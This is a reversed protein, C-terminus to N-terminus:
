WDTIAAGTTPMLYEPELYGQQKVAFRRNQVIGDDQKDAGIRQFLSEDVRLGWKNVTYTKGDEENTIPLSLVSGDSTVAEVIVYYNRANPNREPIRWVGSFEDPRSVVRLEYERQLQQRLSRISAVAATAADMDGARLAAMGGEYQQRAREAAQEVKAASLAADREAALKEPLGKLSTIALLAAEAQEVEASARGTLERQKTLRAEVSASKEEYTDLEINPRQALEWASDILVRADSLSQEAVRRRANATEALAGSVDQVAEPLATQLRSVDQDLLDLKDTAQRVGANLEVVQQELLREAPRVFLFQNGGWLVALLAAVVGGRKAWKGRGVYLRALAVSLGGQPPKYVFREEKLASVGEALVADPVDIGQSAYIERLREILKQDRDDAHLEREVLVQRHRLTDVVDMALMVEDLPRKETQTEAM